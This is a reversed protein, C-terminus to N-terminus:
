QGDAWIGRGDQRAQMQLLAYRDVYPHSWRDDARAWGRALLAENLVRGDPLHVFALVRGYDGRPRHSALELRVTQGAARQAVFRRAARAGSEAAAGDRALEPADVGWLRVRTVPADGDPVAVTLTDGDIVRAVRARRGDYRGMTGGEHLLRGHRDLVMLVALAVVALVALGARRRGRRKLWGRM